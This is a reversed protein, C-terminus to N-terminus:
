PGIYIYRSIKASQEFLYVKSNITQNTYNYAYVFINGNSGSYLTSMEAPTFTVTTTSADVRKKLMSQSSFNDSLVVLVSDYNTVYEALNLTYPTSKSVPAFTPNPATSPFPRTVGLDMPLFSLNGENSWSSYTIPQFSNSNTQTYFVNPNFSSKQLFSGNFSMNGVDINGFNSTTGFSGNNDYFHDWGATLKKAPDSFSAYVNCYYYVSGSNKYSAYLYGNIAKPNSPLGNAQETNVVPVQETEKKKPKKCAALAIVAAVLFYIEKNRRM